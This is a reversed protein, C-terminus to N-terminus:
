GGSYHFLSDKGILSDESVKVFGDIRQQQM